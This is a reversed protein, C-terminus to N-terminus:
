AVGTSIVVDEQELARELLNAEIERFTPEGVQTFVVPYTARCACCNSSRLDIFRQSLMPWSQGWQRKVSGMFGIYKM